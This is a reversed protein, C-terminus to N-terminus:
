RLAPQPVLAECVEHLYRAATGDPFRVLYHDHDVRAIWGFRTRRGEPVAVYVGITKKVADSPRMVYRM